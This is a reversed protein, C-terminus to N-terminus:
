CRNTYNVKTAAHHWLEHMKIAARMVIYCQILDVMIQKGM